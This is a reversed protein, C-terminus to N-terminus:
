TGNRFATRKHDSRYKRPCVGTLAKFDRCFHSADAFGVSIMIEKISAPSQELLRRAEFLCSQKVFHRPSLGTRQRFLHEFRSYSLGRQVAMREWDTRQWAVGEAKSVEQLASEIRRDAPQRQRPFRTFMAKDQSVLRISATILSAPQTKTEAFRGPQNSSARTV